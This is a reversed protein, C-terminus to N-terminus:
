KLTLKHIQIGRITEIRIIYVGADLKSTNIKTSNGEYVRQGVYNYIVVNNIKVSSSINIIDTTPNPFIVTNELFALNKTIKVFSFKGDNAPYVNSVYSDYISKMEFNAVAEEGNSWVKLLIPEGAIYGQGENLVSFIPMDNSYLNGSTIITSGLITNGKYAAVEDGIELGDIYMTYVAEAANGGDFNLHSPKTRQLGSLKTAIPYVIEGDALMKVLYGQGPLADGIGNVWNPGIKRLMNGSSSRIFDLDDGIITEFALLADMSNEPFYSIFQYGTVVAIPTSPDVKTGSIIFSDDAFMKILYGEDVIWDGIGNVWNPGIKRLMSGQSNRVFDLNDNLIAGMVVTMDPDSAEIYSSIFQYGQTLNFTQNPNTGGTIEVIYDEAEGYSLPECPDNCDGGWNTRARMVHLGAPTGGPITISANFISDAVALIYNELVKEDEDFIFNDNWDIWITVRNDAYATAMSVIYNTETELVAPGLDFYQSWGVGNLDACGSGYNEIENLAFDIFGDGEACGSSYEPICYFDGISVEVFNSKQAEGETYLARVYYEYLGDELNLDDYTTETINAILEDDRYVNYGLLADPADWQLYVNNDEVTATLNTAPPLSIFDREKTFYVEKTEDRQVFAVVKCNVLDYNSVDVIFEFTNTSSTSFDLNYGDADPYMEREVFNLEEMGQWLEPIHSETLAVRLTLDEMLPYGIDEVTVEALFESPNGTAELSVSIDCMGPKNMCFDYFATYEEEQYSGSYTGDFYVTPYGTIGYYNIRDTSPGNQYEDGFHYEIVSLQYGTELLMDILLASAPCYGCWTGTGGELLVKERPIPNTFVIAQVCEEPSEGEDYVATVCYQYAGDEMGPDSYNEQTIYDLLETDRFVNYGLLDKSSLPEDKCIEGSNSKGYVPEIDKNYSFILEIPETAIKADGDVTQQIWVHINWAGDYGIENFSTWTNGSFSFIDGYGPNNEASYDWGTCDFFGTPFVHLGVYLPESANIQAYENLQIQNWSFSAPEDLHQYVVPNTVGAAQAVVLTFDHDGQGLAIEVNTIYWGDYQSIMEPDWKVCTYWDGSCSLYGDNNGSDWQLWDGGPSNWTLSVDSGEVSAAFNKVPDLEDTGQTTKIKKLNKQNLQQSYSGASLVIAILLLFLTKFHKM